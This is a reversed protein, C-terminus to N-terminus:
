DEVNTLDDIGEPLEVIIKKAPLDIETCIEAAFPVEFEGHPGDVILLLGGGGEYVERVVGRQKGLPDVLTLGVLDHLFYEGADLKRAQAQPIEITWNRLERIQEPSEIGSFTVLARDGHARASAIDITRTTAEDPSVLTVSRLERFREPSATWPEVSAEGHVGHAKRIIGVAIRDGM